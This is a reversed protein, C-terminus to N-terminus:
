VRNRKKGLSIFIIIITFVFYGFPYLSNGGSFLSNLCLVMGFGCWFIIALVVLFAQQERTM